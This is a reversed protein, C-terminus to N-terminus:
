PNIATVFADVAARGAPVSIHGADVYLQMGESRTPCADASCLEDRLDIIGAGRKRAITAIAEHTPGQRAEVEARPIAAVCGTSLFDVLTCLSPNWDVSSGDFRHIPQALVVHHGAAQLRAVVAELGTAYTAVKRDPNGSLDAPSAGVQFSPKWVYFDSNAIVVTGAPASDLTALVTDVRQECQRDGASTRTPGTIRVLLMPCDAAADVVVPRGLREGTRTAAETFQAANSDGLVYIPAGTAGANWRCTGFPVMGSQQGDLTGTSLCERWGLHPQYDGSFGRLSPVITATVWEDRQALAGVSAALVVPVLVIGIAAAWARGITPMPRLRIPQEVRYYSAIAPVLSLLAALPAAWWDRPLLLVAFTIFPWHWLYISYSWDGVRIAPASSLVRGIPGSGSSAILLATGLVPLLTMPGPFPTQPGIACLGAVVLALGLGGLWPHVRVPIRVLTTAGLALAAGIAFEWARTLPSYFGLLWTQTPLTHGVSGLVALGFSLVAIAIVAFGSWPLRILRRALWWGLALVAPFVLYFQEEVSLSWTNLLPNAAAPATFYGGSVVAIVANASILMAGIATKATNEQAGFPPLLIASAIVTVTVMLALAPVLRKFRRAYFRGFRIRGVGARERMLMATIVFGSIVFFVDVGIFGGPVPLHAHYAVVALVALARLGQIDRRNASLMSAPTSTGRNVQRTTDM